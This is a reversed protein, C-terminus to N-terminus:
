EKNIDLKKIFESPTIGNYNKFARTFASANTYGIIEGMYKITYKRYNKDNELKNIIYKIRLSTYYEKFTKGKVKNIIYSVYSTNTKLKKAFKGMSFSNELYCYSEEIKDLGELIKQELKSDIPYSRNKTLVNTQKYLYFIIILPLIIHLVIYINITEKNESQIEELLTKVHKIIHRFKHINEEYIFYSDRPKKLIGAFNFTSNVNAQITYNVKLNSNQKSLEQVFIM